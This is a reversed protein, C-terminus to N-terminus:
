SYTILEKLSNFYDPTQLLRSGYWSFLEGDVLIIQAHPVWQQIEEVHQQKFPFPESSLLILNVNKWIPDQWNIEPYRELHEFANKLGLYPFLEHIFNDRGVVMWPNKWIFYAVKLTHERHIDLSAFKIKIAETIEKARINQHTIAGINLIMSLAEELNHIDTIYIPAINKLEEMMEQTNEEKNGIILDPSLAKIKSVHVSKTGGIITKEHRWHTPHLCFKTIGVVEQELGLDYLLETQSPVLSVIRIPKIEQSLPQHFWFHKM